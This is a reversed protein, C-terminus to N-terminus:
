VNLILVNLCSIITYLPPRTHIICFVHIHQYVVMTIIYENEYASLPSNKMGNIFRRFIQIPKYYIIVM